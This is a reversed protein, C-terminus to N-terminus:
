LTSLVEFSKGNEVFCDAEIFCSVSNLNDVTITFLGCKNSGGEPDSIVVDNMSSTDFHDPDNSARYSSFRLFSELNFSTLSEMTNPIIISCM